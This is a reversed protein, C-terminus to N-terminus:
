EDEAMEADAAAQQEDTVITPGNQRWQCKAAVAELLEAEAEDADDAFSFESTSTWDRNLRKTWLQFGGRAHERVEYDAGDHQLLLRGAEIATLGSDIVDGSSSRATYTTTM